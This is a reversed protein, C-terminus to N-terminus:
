TTGTRGSRPGGAPVGGLAALVRLCRARAQGPHRRGPARPRGRRPRIAGAGGRPQPHGANPCSRGSLVDVGGPGHDRVASWRLRERGGPSLPWTWRLCMSVLWPACAAAVSCELAASSSLGAGVPVDSDILLEAGPVPYGTAELALAVAAPYAAWSRPPRLGRAPGYGSRLRRWLGSPDLAGGAGPRLPCGRSCPNFQPHSHPPRLERQPRHVRRHPQGAPRAGPWRRYGASPGKSSPRWSMPRPGLSRAPGDM